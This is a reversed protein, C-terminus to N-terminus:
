RAGEVKQDIAHIVAESFADSDDAHRLGPRQERAAILPRETHGQETRAVRHNRRERGGRVLPAAELCSRAHALVVNTEYVARGVVVRYPIPWSEVTRASVPFYFRSVVTAVGVRDLFRPLRTPDLEASLQLREAHPRPVNAETQNALRPASHGIRLSVELSLDATVRPRNRGRSPSLDATIRTWETGSPSLISGLM